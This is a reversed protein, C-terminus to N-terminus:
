PENCEKVFFSSCDDSVYYCKMNFYMLSKIVNIVLSVHMFM